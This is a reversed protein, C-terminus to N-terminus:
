KSPVTVVPSAGVIDTSQLSSLYVLLSFTKKSRADSDSVYYWHNGRRVQVYANLSPTSSCHVILWPQPRNTTAQADADSPPRDDSQQALAQMIALLSRTKVALEGPTHHLEGDVLKVYKGSPTVGLLEMARITAKDTVDVPSALSVGRGEYEFEFRQKGTRQREALLKTLEYFGSTDVVAADGYDAIPLNSLQNMRQVCCELILDIRWGSEALALLTAIPIPQMYRAAFKQGQLPSYTMTPREIYGGTVSWDSQQTAFTDLGYLANVANNNIRNINNWWGGVHAQSNFEFQSLIATLEVMYVPESDRLRLLNLLLQENIAELGALNYATRDKRVASPGLVSCGSLAPILM